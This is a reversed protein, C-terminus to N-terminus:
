GSEDAPDPKARYPAAEEHVVRSAGATETFPERHYLLQSDQHPTPQSALSEITGGQSMCGPLERVRVFWGEDPDRQLEITYSLDLYEEITRKMEYELLKEKRSM